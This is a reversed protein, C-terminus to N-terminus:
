ARQARRVRVRHPHVGGRPEGAVPARAARGTAEIEANRVPQATYLEFEFRGRPESLYVEEGLDDLTLIPREPTEAPVFPTARDGQELKLADIWVGDTPAEIVIVLDFNTENERTAFTIEARRWLGRTDELPLRVRWGEGGGVFGVYGERTKYRCSLTYVTGPQVPVGGEYRLVGYIDAGFPTTNTFKLCRQGTAGLEAVVQVTSDTNRKDWVWGVPLDGEVAEFSANRILNPNPTADLPTLTLKAQSYGCIMLGLWVLWASRRM